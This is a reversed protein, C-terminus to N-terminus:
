SHTSATTDTSATTVIRGARMTVVTGLMEAERDRHTVLLVGQRNGTGDIRAADSATGTGPAGDADRGSSAARLVDALLREATAEDLGATPEDLVLVRPASVLARALAIRQRQGGSVLAGGEGVATDLGDPLTSVWEQLQAVGLLNALSGDDRRGLLINQRISGAFLRAEQEVLGVTQRVDDQALEEIPLEGLSVGGASLPWFRLLAHVLSSKGAGSPGVVAVRAAAPVSLSVGDLAPPLGPGYTLHADTFRVGVPGGPVARPSAPDRVPVPLEAVELLRRGAAAVEAARLAAGAVAPVPEFAAIAALPLVGLLVTSLQHTRVAHVGVALVGIVAAGVCAITTAAALGSLLARRRAIRTLAADASEIRALMEEERGFAVLEAAGQVLDVTEAALEGRRAAEDAAGARTHALLAVVPPAILAALLCLGLVLGAVPLILAVIVVSAGAAAAAVVVPLVVRLSLDALTDVDDVLRTLLDGGRWAGMGAPALPELRDFLWVRWRTLAHLADDHGVLREGYRLPGRIFALVEVCALVGAIAGLGPRYAARDVVYGSGALLGLTALAGAVGLAGALALRRWSLPSVHLLRRALRTV